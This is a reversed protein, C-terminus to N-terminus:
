SVNSPLFWKVKKDGIIIGTLAVLLIIFGFWRGAETTWYPFVASTTNAVAHLLILLVMNGKSKEYLYTYFFAILTNQLVFQWLPIHSQVTGDMYFLPLHWISWVAGVILSTTILNQKSLARQLYGRWGFEEGLAGGVFLIQLFIFPIVLPNVIAGEYTLTTVRQTIFYSIAGLVPFMLL